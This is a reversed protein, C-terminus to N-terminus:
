RLRKESGALIVVIAPVFIALAIGRLVECWEARFYAVTDAISTIYSIFSLQTVLGILILGSVIKLAYLFRM